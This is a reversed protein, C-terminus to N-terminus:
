IKLVLQSSLAQKLLAGARGDGPGVIVLDAGALEVLPALAFPGRLWHCPSHQFSMANMLERDYSERGSCRMGNGSCCSAMM